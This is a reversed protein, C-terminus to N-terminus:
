TPERVMLVLLLTSSHSWTDFIAAPSEWRDLNPRGARAEGAGATRLERCLGVDRPAVRALHGGGGFAVTNTRFSCPHDPYRASRGSSLSCVCERRM